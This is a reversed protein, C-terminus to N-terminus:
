RLSISGTQLLSGGFVAQLRSFIQEAELPEFLDVMLHMETLQETSDVGQYYQVGQLIRAGQREYWHIRRSAWAADEFSRASATEPIEVEFVLLKAREERARRCLDAYLIAGYGSGRAEARTAIYWLFTIGAEPEDEYFAISLAEEREERGSLVLMHKQSAEGASKKQLVGELFAVTMREKPPFSALYIERWAPWLPDTPSTIERIPAQAIESM